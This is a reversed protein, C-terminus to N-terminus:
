QHEALTKIGNNCEQRGQLNQCNHLNQTAILNLRLLDLLSLVQGGLTVVYSIDM